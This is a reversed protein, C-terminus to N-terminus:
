LTVSFFHIVFSLGNWAVPRKQYERFVDSFRQNESTKRPYQFLRTAHFTNFHQCDKNAAIINRIKSLLFYISFLRFKTPSFGRLWRRSLKVTTLWFYMSLYLPLPRNGYNIWLASTLVAKIASYHTSWNLLHHM